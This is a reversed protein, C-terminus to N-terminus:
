FLVYGCCQVSGLHNWNGPRVPQLLTKVAHLLGRFLRRELVIATYWFLSIASIIGAIFLVLPQNQASGSTVVGAIVLALIVVFYLILSLLNAALMRWYHNRAGTLFGSIASIEETQQLEHIGGFLGATILPVIVIRFGWDLLPGISNGSAAPNLTASVNELFYWLFMLLFYPIYVTPQGAKERIEEFTM